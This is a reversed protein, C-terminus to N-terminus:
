GYKGILSITDNFAGTQQIQASILAFNGQGAAAGGGSATGVSALINVRGDRGVATVM